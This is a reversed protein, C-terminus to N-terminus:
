INLYYFKYYGFNDLLLPFSFLLPYIKTLIKYFRDNNKKKFALNISLIWKVIMGM